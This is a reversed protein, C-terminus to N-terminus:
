PCKIECYLGKMGYVEKPNDCYSETNFCRFVEFNQRRHPAFYNFIQVGIFCGLLGILLGCLFGQNM